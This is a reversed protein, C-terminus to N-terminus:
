SWVWWLAVGVEILQERYGEDTTEEEKELAPMDERKLIQALKM